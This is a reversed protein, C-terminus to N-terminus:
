ITFDINFDDAFDGFTSLVEGQPLIDIMRTGTTVITNTKKYFESNKNKNTDIKKYLINDRYLSYDTLNSEKLNTIVKSIDGYYQLTTDLLTQRDLKNVTIKEFDNEFITNYFPEDELIIEPLDRTMTIGTIFDNYEVGTLTIYYPLYRISGYYRNIFDLYTDTPQQLGTNM